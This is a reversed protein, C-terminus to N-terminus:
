EDIRLRCNIGSRLAFGSSKRKGSFPVSFVRLSMWCQGGCSHQDGSGGFLGGLSRNVTQAVVDQFDGARWSLMSKLCCRPSFVKLQGSGVKAREVLEM